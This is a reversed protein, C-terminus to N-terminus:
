RGGLILAGAKGLTAHIAQLAELAKQNQTVFKGLDTPGGAGQAGGSQGAAMFGGAQALKRYGEFGIGGKRKELAEMEVMFGLQEMMLESIRQKRIVESEADAAKHQQLIGLDSDIEKIRRKLDLVKGSNDLRGFALKEKAQALREEAERLSALRAPNVIQDSAAPELEVDEERLVTVGDPALYKYKQKKPKKKHPLPSGDTTGATLDYDGGFMERFWKFNVLGLSGIQYGVAKWADGGQEIMQVLETVDESAAAIDPAIWEGWTRRLRKVAAEMEDVKDIHEQRIPPGFDEGLNGLGAALRPGSKGFIERLADMTERSVEMRNMAEGVKKMVDIAEAGNQVMPGIGFLNAAKVANADGGAIAERFAKVKLLAAGMDEFSLGVSDAAAGLQQVQDTTIGFQDAHDKFQAMRRGVNAIAAELAQFGFYGAVLQKIQNGISSMGSNAAEGAKKMGSQFPAINLGLEAMMKLLSPM